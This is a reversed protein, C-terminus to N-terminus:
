LGCALWRSTTKSLRNLNPITCIARTVQLGVSQKRGSVWGGDLDSACGRLLRNPTWCRIRLTNARASLTRTPDSHSRPCHRPLLGARSQSCECTAYGCWGVKRASCALGVRSCCAWFPHDQSPREFRCRRWFPSPLIHCLHVKAECRTDSRRWPFSRRPSPELTRCTQTRKWVLWCRLVALFGEGYLNWWCSKLWGWTLLRTLLLGKCCSGIHNLDVTEFNRMQMIWKM